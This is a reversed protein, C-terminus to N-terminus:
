EIGEPPIDASELGRFDRKVLKDICKSTVVIYENDKYDYQLIRKWRKDSFRWWKTMIEEHTPERPSYKYWYSDDKNSYAGKIFHLRDIVSSEIHSIGNMTEIMDQNRGKEYRLKYDGTLIDPPLDDIKLEKWDSM